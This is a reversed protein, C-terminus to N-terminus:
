LVLLFWIGDCLKIKSSLYFQCISQSETGKYASKIKSYKDFHSVEQKGM